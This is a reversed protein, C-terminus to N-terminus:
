NYLIKFPKKNDFDGRLGNVYAYLYLKIRKFKHNDFMIVLIINILIYGTLRMYFTDKSTAYQTGLWALNRIGYYRLWLKQYEIRTLKKNFIQRSISNRKSEDKHYIISNPILLIKGFRRLRLCYEIDDHYIFFKKLPFGISKVAERKIIVGVFSATDIEIFTRSYMEQPIPVQIMPIIKDFNAKGRTAYAIENIPSYVAQALAAIDKSNFYESIKSLSTIEPEADDDMLWFWDYGMEYAKKLGEYFGGAGGTNEHMRIYYIKISDGNTLNSILSENEWPETLRAPPLQKIFEQDFLIKPTDNDSFNDIIFIADIIYTQKRLADLCDLLLEKRNYTVVIAAFKM